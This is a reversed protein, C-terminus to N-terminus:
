TIKIDTLAFPQYYRMMVWENIKLTIEANNKNSKQRQFKIYYFMMFKKLEKM